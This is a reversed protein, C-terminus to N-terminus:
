EQRRKLDAVRHEGEADAVIALHEGAEVVAVDDLHHPLSPSPGFMGDKVDDSRETGVDSEM